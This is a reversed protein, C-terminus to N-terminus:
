PCHLTLALSLTQKNKWLLMFVSPFLGTFLTISPFSSSQRPFHRFTPWPPTCLGQPPSKLQLSAKGGGKDRSPLLTSSDQAALNSLPHQFSAWMIIEKNRRCLWLVHCLTLTTSPHISLCLNVPLPLVNQPGQETSHSVQHSLCYLIQRCHLFSPNSGQTPFIGQLFAPLGSWYEQRSFGWPCLLRTPQLGHPWLSNHPRQRLCQDRM